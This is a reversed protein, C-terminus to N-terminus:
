LKMLVEALHFITSLQIDFLVTKDILFLGRYAVAAGDFILNGDDDIDYNGALVGYNEAITKQLDAVIPYKVGKIGGNKTGYKVM